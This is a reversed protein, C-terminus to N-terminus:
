TEHFSHHKIIFQLQITQSSSLKMTLVQAASAAVNNENELIVSTETEEILVMGSSEM